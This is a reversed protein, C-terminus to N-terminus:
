QEETKLPDAACAGSWLLFMLVLQPIRPCM